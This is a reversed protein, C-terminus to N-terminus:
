RAVEVVVQTGEGPHSEIECHGGMAEARECMTILGWGQPEGTQAACTSDFGVGDDAIVLRVTGGEAEVMVTAQTAQAHKAVNTIAEQAIRYLTTEVEPPLRRRTGTVQADVVFPFRTSCDDAYTILAPVLGLEDLVAPRLRISLQRLNNMVQETLRRLEGTRECAEDPHDPLAEEVAALGWSLATLAQSAEDHLERAIHQREEEQAQVTQRLLERRLREQEEREEHLRRQAEARDQSLKDMQRQRELEFLRLAGVIFIATTGAMATRLLQVPFHLVDLFLTSNIVTSPPLPSPGVFVQGPIGYLLFALGVILLDRSVGRSSRRVLRSQRFLGAAALVAGPVALSYRCWADAAALWADVETGWIAWVLGEGLLFVALIAWRVARGARWGGLALSRLGFEVLLVFSVVLTLLRLGQFLLTPPDPAMLQFMEVWEHSGHILGFSALFPLVRAQPLAPARSAELWVVLGTVFFALGYVFFIEVLHRAFFACVACYIDM